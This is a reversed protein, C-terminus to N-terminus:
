KKIEENRKMDKNDLFVLKIMKVQQLINTDFVLGFM